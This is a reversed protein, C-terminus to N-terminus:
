GQELDRDELGGLVRAVAGGSFGRGLLFRALRARARPDLRDLPTGRARRLALARCLAAEGGPAEAELAGAVAARAEGAGVGARLLRREAVRPGVRGSAVLSRARGRAYAGDDLYRLERLWEVVADSQEALDAKGLRARVQAETRAAAALYRLALVRARQLPPQDSRMSAHKADSGSSRSTTTAVPRAV